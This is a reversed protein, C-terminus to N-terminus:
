MFLCLSVRRVPAMDTDNLDDDDDDDDDDDNESPLDDDSLPHPEAAAGDAADDFLEMESLLSMTLVCALLLFEASNWTLNNYVIRHSLPWKQVSVDGNSRSVSGHTDVHEIPPLM